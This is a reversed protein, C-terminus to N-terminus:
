GLYHESGRGNKTYRGRNPRVADEDRESGRRAGASGCRGGDIADVAAEKDVRHACVGEQRRRQPVARLRRRQHPAQPRRIHARQLRRIRVHILYPRIISPDHNRGLPAFTGGKQMCETDATQTHTCICAHIQQACTFVQRRSQRKAGACSM